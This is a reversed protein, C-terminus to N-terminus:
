CDNQTLRKLEHLLVKQDQDIESIFGLLFLQSEATLTLLINKIEETTFKDFDSDTLSLAMEEIMKALNSVPESVDLALFLREAANRTQKLHDDLIDADEIALQIQKELEDVYQQLTPSLEFPAPKLISM